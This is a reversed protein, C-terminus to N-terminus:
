SRSPRPTWAATPLWNRPWRPSSPAPSRVSSPSRHVVARHGLHLARGAGAMRDAAVGGALGPGQRRRRHHHDHLLPGRGPAPHRRRRLDHRGPHVHRRLPGLGPRAEQVRQHLHPEPVRRRGQRPDRDQGPHHRGHIGRIGPRRRMRPAGRRGHGRRGAPLVLAAEVARRRRVPRGPRRALPPHLHARAPDFLEGRQRGALAAFAVPTFPARYTTTGIDGIGRSAEGATRLAAAIVGIANVGSTKGQDNATSISTYRKIHEVSACAPVPPACCTPWPRTASSTSSTTTGTMRARRGARAGALAPPDPPPPRRSASSPRNSTPSSARPSSRRPAPPSAKPWATTSTSAAAAPASSRSTPSWAAPCSPPSTKTGACGARASPTCTCWRAGAAPSPWCTAPSSTRHGLHTRRRRRHERVTVGLLRGDGSDCRHHQRRRQRDAGAHGRRCSRCRPETLQPAPTSSPRSRSARRRPPRRGPRLRQRQHHRRRGPDRRRRRLPQPLHPRGLRAHHRPPRQQRLGAPTRPRRHGPDVQHARIHWIRQRSVGAPRGPTLRPPRHPEPRRHRLQRRLLRLRHHPEPGHVEAASILEAEVDAVWELAPQGEISEVLAPDTSGSLLSGGLEPQDDILIVRAGTASPRAPRPWAPRAAVSWWSTPTSTSRTTSPTTRPRTWSASGALLEASSATWWPWPRPRSCPSPWTARSGPRSRSWPTPNRSAPPCSAARGAEISPTAPARAPRQGAPGLRPHRRPPRHNM